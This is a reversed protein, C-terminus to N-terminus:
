CFYQGVQSMVFVDAQLQQLFKGLLIYEMQLIASIQLSSLSGGLDYKVNLPPYFRIVYQELSKKGKGM